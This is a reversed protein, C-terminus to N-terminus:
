YEGYKRGADVFARINEPPTNLSLYDTTGLIFNGRPKITECIYKIRADIEEPTAEVLFDIQDVHGWLIMDKPVKEIVEELICDGHPPPAVYGWVKYHLQDYVDLHNKAMGCNHYLAVADNKQVVDALRNEYPLINEVLFAPSVVSGGAINGGVDVMDAGEGEWIELVKCVRNTFYEMMRHYFDPNMAQDMLIDEIKRYCYVILNFAGHTSPSALGGDGLAQKMKKLLTTDIQSDPMYEAIIEFDKETKIPLDTIAREVEYKNIRSISIVRQVTGKPTTVTCTEYETEGSSSHTIEPKWDPGELAFDCMEFHQHPLETCNWDITDFNFHKYYEVFSDTYDVDTRGFYEFMVNEYVRPCIPIRDIPEGRFLRKYREKTSLEYM